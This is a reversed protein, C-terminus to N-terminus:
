RSRSSDCSSERFRRSKTPMLSRKSSRQGTLDKAIYMASNPVFRHRRQARPGAQNRARPPHGPGRLNETYRGAACRSHLRKKMGSVSYSPQLDLRAIHYLAQADNQWISDRMMKKDRYEKLVKILTIAHNYFGMLKVFDRQASQIDLAMTTLAIHSAAGAPSYGSQVELLAM